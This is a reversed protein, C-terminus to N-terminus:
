EDKELGEDVEKLFVRPEYVLRKTGEYLAQGARRLQMAPDTASQFLQEISSQPERKSTSAKRLEKHWQKLGRIEDLAVAHYYQGYSQPPSLKKYFDHARQHYRQWKDPEQLRIIEFLVERLLEHITYW